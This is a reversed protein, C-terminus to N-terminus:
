GKRKARRRAFSVLGITVAAMTGPEPVPYNTGSASTLTWGGVLEGNANVVEVGTLTVTSSFNAVGSATTGDDVEHTNLVFQSSFQVNIDQPTIGNIEYTQTAWIENYNGAGIFFADEYPNNAISVSLSAFTGYGVSQGEIHFIYRARYGAELTGGYHLTDNFGAFGLSVLGTPSGEPDYTGTDWDFYKPNNENYYSNTVTGATYSKLRGFASQTLTQGQFRMEQEAGNRDLGTWTQDMQASTVGGDTRHEFGVTGIFSGNTVGAISQSWIDFAAAQGSVAVAALASLALSFGRSSNRNGKM